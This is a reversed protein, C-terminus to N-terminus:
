SLKGGNAVCRRFAAARQKGSGHGRIQAEHSWKQVQASCKTRIEDSIKPEQALTSQVTSLIAFAFVFLCAAKKDM